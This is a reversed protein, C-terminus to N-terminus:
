NAAQAAMKTLLLDLNPPLKVSKSSILLRAKRALNGRTEGTKLPRWLAQLTALICNLRRGDIALQSETLKAGAKVMDGAAECAPVKGLDKLAHLITACNDIQKM